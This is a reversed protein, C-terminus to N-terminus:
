KKRLMLVIVAGVIAIAAVIIGIGPLMYQDALSAPAATPAITPEPAEM